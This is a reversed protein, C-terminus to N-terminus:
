DKSAAEPRVAAIPKIKSIREAIKPSLYILDARAAQIAELVEQFASEKLLYGRAGAKLMEKAFQRDSHVSLGIVKVGPCSAVIRRTAEIGSLDPMTIDMIVVDPSLKRCLQVAARGNDAEAIVELRPQSALLSKLGQRIVAHADALLIKIARADTKKSDGLDTPM